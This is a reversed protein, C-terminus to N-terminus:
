TGILQMKCYDRVLTEPMSIMMDFISIVNYYVFNQYFYENFIKLSRMKSLAILCKLSVFRRLKENESKLLDLIEWDQFRSFESKPMYRIVAIKLDNSLELKLAEGLRGKALSCIAKVVEAQGADSEREILLANIGTKSKAIKSVASIDEWDGYRALFRIEASSGKVFGTALVERVLKLDNKDMRSSVVTLANRTMRQRVFESLGKLDDRLKESPPPSMAAVAEDYFSVFQDALGRKLTALYKKPYAAARVAYILDVFPLDADIKVSLERETMGSYYFLQYEEFEEDGQTTTAGFIGKSPRVLVKKADGPSYRIGLEYLFKLATLRTKASSDELFPRVEDTSLERRNALAELAKLRVFSDRHSLARRLETSNLNASDEFVATVIESPVSDTLLDNLESVARNRGYRLSIKLVANIAAGRTQYDASDIESKILPLDAETGCKALYQLAAIKVSGDITKDLWRTIQLSRNGEINRRLAGLARFAGIKVPNTGLTTRYFLQDYKQKEIESLWYWIPVNENDFNALGSELLSEMEKVSLPINKNRYIINSDHAGLFLEDNGPEEAVVGLLRLRAVDYNTLVPETTEIENLLSKFFAISIESILNNSGAVDASGGSVDDSKIEAVEDQAEKEKLKLSQVYRTIAREFSAKFTDLDSFENFLINQASIIKSKFDIVKQLGPGPDRLSDEDVRRFALNIQPRGESQFREFSRTFEEEFGSTYGSAGGPPTGWRKWIMGYFFECQDLDRNIIEQPRGIMPTTLEWGVLEIQYGMHDAWMENWFDVVQKAALREDALDGPSGLFVKIVKRLSM